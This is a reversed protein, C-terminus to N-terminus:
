FGKKNDPNNLLGFVNLVEQVCTWIVKVKDSLEPNFLEIITIINTVLVIIVVPSTIKKKFKEWTM